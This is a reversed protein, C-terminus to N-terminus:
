KDKLIKELEERVVKADSWKEKSGNPGMIYPDTGKGTILVVEGESAKKLASNIAERRNMIINVPKSKIGKKIDEVIKIPDEDYPDENTLIIENCYKEAIEGMVSRKWKDRGGGTNGLVCIKPSPFTKYLKELSDSTHAYDVFVSFNMKKFLDKNEPIIKEVRGRIIGVKEVGRKITETDINESEAFTAAALSNYINFKGPLNIKIDKGRFKIKSGGESLEYPEADEISFKIKREINIELFKSSEKDDKNVVIVKEKKTSKELEKAIKLKAELYKEYSGHSEIHEPSLNTFILANLSIFKHRFQKAGESTMEIVAYDCKKKVAKKLFNQLFFRGPMTMKYLNPIGKGDIEFKITSASAVKFGSEKLISSVFEVTSSKGKTGTIALVKIKKSPFFNIIAGTFALLYHYNEIVKKPIIKKFFSIIKNM